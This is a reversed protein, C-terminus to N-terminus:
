TIDSYEVSMLLRIVFEKEIQMISSICDNIGYTIFLYQKNNITSEVMGAVFQVVDCDTSNLIIFPSNFCFEISMRRVYFPPKDNVTYFFHTYHHGYNIGFPQKVNMNKYLDYHFHGVALLENSHKLHIFGCNQHYSNAKTNIGNIGNHYKFYFLQSNHYAYIQANNSLNIEIFYSHKLEWQFYLQKNYQLPILNKPVGFIESGNPRYYLDITDSLYAVIEFQNNITEEKWVLKSIYAHEIYNVIRKNYKIPDYCMCITFVNNNYRFLRCDQLPKSNSDDFQLFIYQLINFNQDLLAIGSGIHTYKYLKKKKKKKPNDFHFYSKYNTISYKCQHNHWRGILIFKTHRIIHRHYTLNISSLMVNQYNDISNINIISPNLFPFTQNNHKFANILLQPNTLKLIPKFQSINLKHYDDFRWGNRFPYNHQINIDFNDLTIETTINNYNDNYLMNKNFLITLLMSCAILTFICVKSKNVVFGVSM